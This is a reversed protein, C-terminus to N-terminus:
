YTMNNLIDTLALDKKLSQPHAATQILEMHVTWLVVVVKVQPVMIVMMDVVLNDSGILSKEQLATSQMQPAFGELHSYQPIGKQKPRPEQCILTIILKHPLLSPAM